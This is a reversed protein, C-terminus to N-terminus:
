DKGSKKWIMMPHSVEVNRKGFSGICHLIFWKEIFLRRCFNWMCFTGGLIQGRVCPRAVIPGRSFYGM